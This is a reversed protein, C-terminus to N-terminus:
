FRKWVAIEATLVSSGLRLNASYFNPNAGSSLMKWFSIRPIDKPNDVQLKDAQLLLALRGLPGIEISAGGPSLRAFVLDSIAM